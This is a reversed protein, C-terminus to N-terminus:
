IDSRVELLLHLVGVLGRPDGRGGFAEVGEFELALARDLVPLCQGFCPDGCLM